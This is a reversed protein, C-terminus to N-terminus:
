EVYSIGERATFWGARVFRLRSWVDLTEKPINVRGEGGKIAPDMMQGQPGSLHPAAPETVRYNRQTPRIVGTSQGTSSRQHANLEKPPFEGSEGSAKLLLHLADTPINIPGQLLAAAADNAVEQDKGNESSDINESTVYTDQQPFAGEGAPNYGHTPPTASLSGSSLLRQHGQHAGAQRNIVNQEPKFSKRRNNATYEDLASDHDGPESEEGEAKRKRRTSTFHCHKSERRCRVCPPEHPEDM